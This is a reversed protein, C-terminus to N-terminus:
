IPLTLMRPRKGLIVRHGEVSEHVAEYSPPRPSYCLSIPSDCPSTPFSCPSTPLYRPATPTYCPSEPTYSRSHGNYVQESEPAEAVKDSLDMNFGNGYNQELAAASAANRSRGYGNIEPEQARGSGEYRDTSAMIPEVLEADVQSMYGPVEPPSGYSEDSSYGTYADELLDRIVHGKSIDNNSGLEHDAAPTTFRDRLKYEASAEHLEILSKPAKETAKHLRGSHNEEFRQFGRSEDLPDNSFDNWHDQQELAAEQSYDYGREEAEDYEDMSDTLEEESDTVLEADAVIVEAHSFIQGKSVNSGVGRDAVPTISRDRHSQDTLPKSASGSPYFRELIKVRVDRPINGRHKRSAKSIAKNYAEEKDLSTRAVERRKLFIDSPENDRKRGVDKSHDIKSVSQPKISSQVDNNRTRKRPKFM